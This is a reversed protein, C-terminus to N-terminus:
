YGSIKRRLLPLALDVSDPCFTDTELLADLETLTVFRAQVVEGDDFSFPGDSRALYVHGVLSAGGGPEEWTGRGLHELSADIGLEERLERRASEDWSEGATCVGGAAIDWASPFVEKDASRQHILLQGDSSVVGIYTSRHRLKQARMEVRTVVRLVTGLEDVEEVLEDKIV